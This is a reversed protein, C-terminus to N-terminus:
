RDRVRPNLRDAFPNAEFDARIKVQTQIVNAVLNMAYDDVREQLSSGIPFYEPHLDM